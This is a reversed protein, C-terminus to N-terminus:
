KIVSLKKNKTWQRKNYECIWNITCFAMENECCVILYEMENKKFNFKM